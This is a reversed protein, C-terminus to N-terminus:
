IREGKTVALSVWMWVVFVWSAWWGWPGVWNALAPGWSLVCAIMAYIPPLRAIAPIVVVLHYPIWYPTVFVGSLMLMDIDGHSLWMLVIAIPLGTIGIAIDNVHPQDHITFLHLPWLGWVLCSIVITVVAIVVFKWHVLLGFAAIQPKLLVLFTSSPLFMLGILALVDIQGLFLTWMLPLSFFACTFSIPHRSREYLAIGVTALTLAVLTPWNLLRVIPATWPPYYAPINRAKEFYTVWDFGTFGDAKFLSGIPHLLLILTLLIILRKLTM